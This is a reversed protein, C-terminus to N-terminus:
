SHYVLNLETLKATLNDFYGPNIVDLDLNINNESATGYSGNVDGRLVGVLGNLSPADTTGTVFHIPDPQGPNLPQAQIGPLKASLPDVFVWDPQPSSLGVVYKLIGIADSLNVTGNGDFDAAYAQFPSLPNGAGNVDLGVIMKLVSVADGLSVQATGVGVTSRDATM